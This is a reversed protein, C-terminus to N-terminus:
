LGELNVNTEVNNKRVEEYKLGLYKAMAQMYKEPLASSGSLHKSIRSSDIGLEKAIKALKIEKLILYKKLEM